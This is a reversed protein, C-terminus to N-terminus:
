AELAYTFPGGVARSNLSQHPDPDPSLKESQHPDPDPNGFHHSDVSLFFNQVWTILNSKAGTEYGGPCYKNTEAELLM